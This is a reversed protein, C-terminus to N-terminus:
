STDEGRLPVVTGGAFIVGLFSVLLQYRNFGIILVVDGPMVGLEHLFHSLKLSDSKLQEFSFERGTESEILYTKNGHSELKEIIFQSFSVLPVNFDETKFKSEIIRPCSSM